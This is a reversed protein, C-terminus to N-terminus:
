GERYLEETVINSSLNSVIDGDKGDTIKIIDIAGRINFVPSLEGNPM